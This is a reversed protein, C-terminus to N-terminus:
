FLYGTTPHKLLADDIGNWGNSIIGSRTHPLDSLQLVDSLCVSSLVVFFSRSFLLLSVLVFLADRLLSVCVFMLDAHLCFEFALMNPM